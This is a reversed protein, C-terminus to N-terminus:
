APPHSYLPTGRRKIGFLVAALRDAPELAGATSGHKEDVTMHVRADLHASPGDVGIGRFELVAPDPSHARVVVLAAADGRNTREFRDYARANAELAVNEHCGDNS